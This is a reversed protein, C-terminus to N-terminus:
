RRRRRKPKPEMVKFLGFAAVSALALGGWFNVTPSTAAGTQAFSSDHECNDVLPDYGGVANSLARVEVFANELDSREPRVIFGQKGDCFEEWTTIRKGTEPMTDKALGNRLGTGYHWGLGSDKPRLLLDGQQIPSQREQLNVYAM